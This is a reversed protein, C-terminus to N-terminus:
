HAVVTVDLIANLCKAILNVVVVVTVVYKVIGLNRIGLIVAQNPLQLIQLAFVRFQHCGVRWGLTNAVRWDLREACDFM